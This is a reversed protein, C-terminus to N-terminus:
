IWKLEYSHKAQSRIYMNMPTILSKKLGLLALPHANDAWEPQSLTLTDSLKPLAAAKGAKANIVGRINDKLWFLATSFDQPVHFSYIMKNNQAQYLQRLHPSHM